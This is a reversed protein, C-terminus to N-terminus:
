TLGNSEIAASENSELLFLIETDLTPSHRTTYRFMCEL